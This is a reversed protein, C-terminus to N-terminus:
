VQLYKFIVTSKHRDKLANGTSLSTKLIGNTTLVVLPFGRADSQLYYVETCNAVLKQKARGKFSYLGTLNFAPFTGYSRNNQNCVPDFPSTLKFFLVITHHSVAM